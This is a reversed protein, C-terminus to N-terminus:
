RNLIESVPECKIGTVEGIGLDAKWANYSMGGLTLNDYVNDGVKIGYHFENGIVDGAKDSYVLSSSDVRIIEYEIGMDDLKKALSEAFQNCKGNVKFKSPVKNIM